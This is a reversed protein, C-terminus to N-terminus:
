TSPEKMGQAKTSLAEAYRRALSRYFSGLKPRQILFRWGIRQISIAAAEAKGNVYIKGDLTCASPFMRAVQMSPAERWTHSRSDMVMVSSLANNKSGGGIAYINSGVVVVGASM